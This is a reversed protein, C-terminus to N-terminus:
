QAPICDDQMHVSNGTWSNGNLNAVGGGGESATVNCHLIPPEVKVGIPTSSDPIAQAWVLSGGASSWATNDKITNDYTGNLVVIGGVFSPAEGAAIETGTPGDSHDSNGQVLNDHTAGFTELTGTGGLALPLPDAILIGFFDGTSFANGIVQDSSSGDTILVNTTFPYNATNNSITDNSSHFLSYSVSTDNNAANHDVTSDSVNFFRVGGVNWNSLKPDFGIYDPVGDAGDASLQWGRITIGSSNEVDIAGVSNHNMVGAGSKVGPGNANAGGGDLTVNISHNKVLVGTGVTQISTKSGSVRAVAANVNDLVIGESDPTSNGAITLNHLDFSKTVNAITVAAGSANNISWPGIVYPAAPSGDGSVVCGCNSFDTNGNIVIPAHKASSAGSATAVLNLTLALGALIGAGVLSGVARQARLRPLLAGIDSGRKLLRTTVAAVEAALALAIVSRKFVM